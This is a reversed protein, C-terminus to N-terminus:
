ERACLYPSHQLAIWAACNVNFDAKVILLGFVDHWTSIKIFQLFIVLSDLSLELQVEGQRTSTSHKIREVTRRLIGSTGWVDSFVCGRGRGM